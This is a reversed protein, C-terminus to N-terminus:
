NALTGSVCFKVFHYKEKCPPCKAFKHESCLNRFMIEYGRVEICLVKNKGARPPHESNTNRVCIAVWASEESCARLNQCSKPMYVRAQFNTGLIPFRRALWNGIRPVIRVGLFVDGLAIKVM